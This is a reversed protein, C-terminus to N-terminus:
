PVLRQQIGMRRRHRPRPRGGVTAPSVWWLSGARQRGILRHERVNFHENTRLRSVFAVSFPSACCAPSGRGGSGGEKVERAIVPLHEVHWSAKRRKSVTPHRRGHVLKRGKASSSSVGLEVELGSILRSVAPESLNLRNSAAPVAGKWLMAFPESGRSVCKITNEQPKRFIYQM